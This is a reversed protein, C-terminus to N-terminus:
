IYRFHKRTKIISGPNSLTEYLSKAVKNRVGDGVGFQKFKQQVVGIAQKLKPAQRGVTGAEDQHEVVM